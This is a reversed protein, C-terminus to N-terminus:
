AQAAAKLQDILRSADALSLEEPRTVGLDCLLGDIDAHQRRAISVIARVQSPTAPKGVRPQQAELRPVPKGNGAQDGNSHGNIVPAERAEIPEGGAQLRALEDDVARQAAAFAGRVQDQFGAPDRLVGNELELDLNCSAGVSSYAPLGLKKSIGVNLRLPM